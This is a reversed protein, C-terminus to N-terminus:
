FIGKETALWDPITIEKNQKDLTVHSKPLWVEEGDIELLYAKETERLISDYMYADGPDDKELGEGEWGM